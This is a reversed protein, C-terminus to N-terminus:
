PYVRLLVRLDWIVGKKAGILKKKEFLDGVRATKNLGVEGEFLMANLFFIALHNVRFFCLVKCLHM